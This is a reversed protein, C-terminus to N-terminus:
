TSENGMERSRDTVDVAHVMVANVMGDPTTLPQYVFDFVGEELVGTGARDLMARMGRGVFPIGTRMVDRLINIFMPQDRLEPLADLVPKGVVDRGGVLQRYFANATRFVLDPGEITAIAAPAQEFARRLEARAHEAAALANRQESISTHMGVWERISGNDNLVPVARISFPCYEGKRTRVRHEFVFMRRAAVAANWAAITPAADDPHVANAWGFGEYEERTQGTLATWGPQDGEMRGEPSNTWIYQGAAEVLARYRQESREVAGRSREAQEFSAREAALRAAQEQAEQQESINRFTVVVGLIKRGQKIPIATYAVPVQSGDKRWFVDSGVRQQVGETAALYIPCEEKPFHSGDAYHHHTLAHQDHGLLERMTYGLMQGAAENVFIARGTPDLFYVGDDIANLVQEGRERLLEVAQAVTRDTSITDSPM